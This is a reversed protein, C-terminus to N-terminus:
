SFNGGLITQMTWISLDIHLHAFFVGNPTCHQDFSNCCSQALELVLVTCKQLAKHYQYVIHQFEPMKQCYGYIEKFCNAIFSEDPISITIVFEISNIACKVSAITTEIRQICRKTGFTNAKFLRYYKLRTQMQLIHIVANTLVKSIDLFAGEISTLTTRMTAACSLFFFRRALMATLEIVPQHCLM